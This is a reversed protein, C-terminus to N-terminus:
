PGVDWLLRYYRMRKRDLVVGYADLLPREWGPGYNWQTSWTAIALDAWRDGIGLDGLDVHGSWHGDETLLTNPACADGHCVVLRDIPPVMALLDLVKAVDLSRHIPHWFAPVLDGALARFRAEALRDEASWSFPCSEIPLSDHFARLGRGIAAVALGPDAKWRDGVATGGPLAATVIWSGAEDAGQDMLAPVPTFDVAWTLRVAERALNLGSGKPAWKIFYRGAGRGVEFTLGGLENQWVPRLPRDGAMRAIAPPTAVHGDPVGAFPM